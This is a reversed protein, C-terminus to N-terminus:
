WVPLHGEESLRLVDVERAGGVVRHRGPLHKLRGAAASGLMAGAQVGRWTPSTGEVIYRAIPRAWVEELVAHLVFSKFILM